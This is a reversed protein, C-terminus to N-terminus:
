RVVQEKSLGKSPSLLGRETLWAVREEFTPGETAVAELAVAPVLAGEAAAPTAVAVTVVATKCRGEKGAMCRM